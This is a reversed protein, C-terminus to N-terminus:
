QIDFYIMLAHEIKGNGELTVMAWEKKGKLSLPISYNIKVKSFQTGPSISGYDVSTTSGSGFTIEPTSTKAARLIYRGPLLSTAKNKVQVGISVQTGARITLTSSPVSTGNADFLLLSVFRDLEIMRRLTQFTKRGGSLELASTFNVYTNDGIWPGAEVRFPISIVEGPGMKPLKLKKESFKVFQPNNGVEGVVKTLESATRNKFVFKAEVAEGVKMKPPLQVETMELPFGTEADTKTRAVEKWGQSTEVELSCELSLKDGPSQTQLSSMVVGSLTTRTKGALAPLERIQFNVPGLGGVALVRLRVKSMATSQGGYNDIVVGLSISEGPTFLGDGSTEKLYAGRLVLFAGKEVESKFSEGGAQYESSQYAVLKQAFGDLVGQDKAGIQKGSTSAGIDQKLLTSQYSGDASALFSKRYEVLYIKRFQEAYQAFYARDYRELCLSDFESLVLGTCPPSYYAKLSALVNIQPSGAVPTGLEPEQPPVVSPEAGQGIPINELQAFQGNGGPDSSITESIDVTSSQPPAASLYNKLTDNFGRPFNEAHAKDKAFGEGQAFGQRYYSVLDSQTAAQERGELYGKKYDRGKIDEMGKIVGAKAGAQDGDLKGPGTARELAEQGSHQTAASDAKTYVQKLAEQYNAYVQQYYAYAEQASKEQYEYESKASAYPPRSSAVDQRALETATKARRVTEDAESLLRVQQQRKRESDQIAYRKNQITQNRQLINSSLSSQEREFQNIESDLNRLKQNESDRQQQLQELKRRLSEIEPNDKECSSISCKGHIKLCSAMAEAEAEQRSGGTAPHGGSHEEWGRDVAVCRWNGPGNGFQLDSIRREVEHIRDDLQEIKRYIRDRESRKNQIAFQIDDLRRQDTNNQFTLSDIERQFNQIEREINEITREIRNRESIANAENAEANRLEREAQQVVAYLSEMRAKARDALQKQAEYKAKAGAVDLDTAWVTVTAGLLLSTLIKILNM